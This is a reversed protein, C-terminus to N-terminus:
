TNHDVRLRSNPLGFEIEENEETARSSNRAVVAEKMRMGMESIVIICSGMEILAVYLM